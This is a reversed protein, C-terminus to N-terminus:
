PSAANLFAAITFWAVSPRSGVAVHLAQELALLLREAASTSSSSASFSRTVLKLMVAPAKARSSTASSAEIGASRSMSRTPDGASADSLEASGDSRAKATSARGPTREEPGVSSAESGNM